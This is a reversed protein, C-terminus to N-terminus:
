RGLAPAEALDNLAWDYPLFDVRLRGSLLADREAAPLYPAVFALVGAHKGASRRLAPPAETAAFDEGFWEFIRSLGATGRALDFRNRRPDTVFRRFQEDLQEELRAATFAGARLEPCSASACVIAAHVRPEGFRPRLIDHEIQDLSLERGGVRAQFRKFIGPVQLVSNAPHAPDSGQIPFHDLVLAVMRANYANAWFALQEDRSLADPDTEALDRLYADLRPRDRALAAYDVLGDSVHEKLLADWAGHDGAAAPSGLAAILVAATLLTRM